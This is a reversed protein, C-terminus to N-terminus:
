QRRGLAVVHRIAHVQDRRRRRPRVRLHLVAPGVRQGAVGGVAVVGPGGRSLGAWRPVRVALGLGSRRRSVRVVVCRGSVRGARLGPGRVLLGTRLAM